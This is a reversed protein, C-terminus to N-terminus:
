HPVMASPKLMVATIAALSERRALAPKSYARKTM